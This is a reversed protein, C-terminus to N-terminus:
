PRRKGGHIEHWKDIVEVFGLPNYEERDWQDHDCYDLV